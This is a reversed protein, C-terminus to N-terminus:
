LDPGVITGFIFSIWFTTWFNDRSCSDAAPPPPPTRVPVFVYTVGLISPHSLLSSWTKRHMVQGCHTLIYIKIRSSVVNCNQGLELVGHAKVLGSHTWINMIITPAGCINCPQKKTQAWGILSPTVKYRRRENSPHLGLILGTNCDQM